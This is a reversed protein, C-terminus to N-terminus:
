LYHDTFLSAPHTKRPRGRKTAHTDAETQLADGFRILLQGRDNRGRPTIKNRRVWQDIAGYSVQGDFFTVLEPITLLADRNLDTGSM